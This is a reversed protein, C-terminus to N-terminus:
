VILRGFAFNATEGNSSFLEKVHLCVYVFYQNEGVTPPLVRGTIGGNMVNETDPQCLIM